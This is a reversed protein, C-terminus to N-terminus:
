GIGPALLRFGQAQAALAQRRDYTVFADLHDELLAASALHIADLSRLDHAALRGATELVEGDVLIRECCGLVAIARAMALPGQDQVARLVETTALDSTVLHAPAVLSERLTQTEHEEVVLKVLASSDLYWCADDRATLHPAPVPPADNVSRSRDASM